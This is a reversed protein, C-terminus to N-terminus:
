YVGIKQWKGSINMSGSVVSWTGNLTGSGSLNAHNSVTIYSYYESFNLYSYYTETDQGQLELDTFASPNTDDYRYLHFTITQYYTNAYYEQPYMWKYWGDQVPSGASIRLSANNTGDVYYGDNCNWLPNGDKDLVYLYRFIIGDGWDFRYVGLQAGEPWETHFAAALFKLLDKNGLKMTKATWRRDFGPGEGNSDQWHVVLSFQIKEFPNSGSPIIQGPSTGTALVALMFSLLLLTPKM